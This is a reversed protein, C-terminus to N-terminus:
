PIGGNIGCRQLLRLVLRVPLGAVNSPSGSIAEIFYAGRGDVHYAGAKDLPEGTAVYWERERRSMEAFRVTTREVGTHAVGEHLACVGTLVEHSRGSLQALMELADRRDAPKGLVRGECVVETDAGLITLGEVRETRAVARAKAVALREVRAEGDEGAEQAEDVGSIVVRFPLGLDSLIRARRASSSALVIEPTM